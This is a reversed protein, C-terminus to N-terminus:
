PLGCLMGSVITDSSGARGSRVVVMVRRAPGVPDVIQWTETIGPGGASGSRWDAGTCAPATSFAIQRLREIRAAAVQGARTSHRGDALMRNTLAASGVLALIGVSLVLVAVVAEAITIGSRGAVHV